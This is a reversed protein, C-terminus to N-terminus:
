SRDILHLFSGAVNGVALGVPAPTGDIASAHFLPPMGAPVRDTAYHFEHGRFCTGAPM